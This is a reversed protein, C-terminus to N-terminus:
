RVSCSTQDALNFNNGSDYCDPGPQGDSILPPSICDQQQLSCLPFPVCPDTTHPRRWAAQLAVTSSPQAWAKRATTSCGHSAHQAGTSHAAAPSRGQTASSHRQAAGRNQATSNHQQKATGASHTCCAPAAAVSCSTAAPQMHWRAPHLCPSAGGCCCCICTVSSSGVRWLVSVAVAGRAALAFVLLISRLVVCRGM